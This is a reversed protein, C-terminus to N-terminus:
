RLNHCCESQLIRSFHGPRTSPSGNEKNAKRWHKVYSRTCKFFKFTLWTFIRVLLLEERGCFVRCMFRWTLLETVKHCWAMDCMQMIRVRNPMYLDIWCLQESTTLMAPEPTQSSVLWLLTLILSSPRLSVPALGSCKLCLPFVSRCYQVSCTQRFM